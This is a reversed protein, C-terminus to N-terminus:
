NQMLSKAADAWAAIEKLSEKVQAGDSSALAQRLIETTVPRLRSAVQTLKRAVELDKASYGDIADLIVSEIRERPFDPV